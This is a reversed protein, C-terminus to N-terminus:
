FGREKCLRDIERWPKGTMFTTAHQISKKNKLLEHVGLRKIRRGLLTGERNEEAIMTLYLLTFTVDAKLSDKGYGEAIGDITRLVKKSVEKGTVDYIKVFDDYVPDGGYDDALEKLTSFYFSDKPASKKGESDILCVCWADFKGEDFAASVGNSFIKLIEVKGRNGDM